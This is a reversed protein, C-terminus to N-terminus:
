LSAHSEQKLSAAQIKQTQGTCHAKASAYPIISFVSATKKVPTFEPVELGIQEINKAANIDRDHITNCQPCTWERDSLKLADHKYDCGKVSCLKSSPEWQGIQVIISGNCHAKYEVAQCVRELWL